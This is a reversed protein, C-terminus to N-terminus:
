IKGLWDSLLSNLIIRKHAESEFSVEEVKWDEAEKDQYEVIIREERIDIDLRHTKRDNGMVNIETAIPGYKENRAVGNSIRTTGKKFFILGMNAKIDTDLTQVVRDTWQKRASATDKFGERLFYDLFMGVNQRCYGVARDSSTSANEM